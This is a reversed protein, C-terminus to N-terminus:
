HAPLGASDLLPQLLSMWRRGVADMSFSDICHERAARGMAQLLGPDDLLTVAAAAMAELDDVATIFGGEGDVVVTRAGPVDTAIVPLGSLGAEILVGPMGEGAPRSPFVLLDSHRMLDAVDSRSGLLEVGADQGAGAIQDRMPGDGVLLSRCRVGRARLVATLEIFADPRKGATLAGVFLVTPQARAPAAPDPHFVDPDRGNPTVTIRSAPVGLLDICQERVEDGEAAIADARAVLRKWLELQARGGSGSYTGIAYYALPRRRGITAPVLYKLPESGHAVLVTPALRGLESRLRVILRPDFGVAPSTGGPHGLSFDSVVEEDGAFLTLVRHARTGPTDLHDALARAERQAGRATGTPIVHLVL